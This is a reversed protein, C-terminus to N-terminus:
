DTLLIQQRLSSVPVNLQKGLHVARCHATFISDQSVVGMRIRPSSRRTAFEEQQVEM